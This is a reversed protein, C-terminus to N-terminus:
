PSLWGTAGLVVGSPESSGAPRWSLRRTSIMTGTKQATASRAPEDASPGPPRGLWPRAPLLPLVRASCLGRDVESVQLSCTMVAALVLLVILAALATLEAVVTLAAEASEAAEAM